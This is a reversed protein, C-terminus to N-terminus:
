AVYLIECSGCRFRKRLGLRRVSLPNYVFARTKLSGKPPGHWFHSANSFKNVPRSTQGSPRNHTLSTTPKQKPRLLLTTRTPGPTAPLRGRCHPALTVSRCESDTPKVLSILRKPPKEVTRKVKGLSGRSTKENEYLFDGQGVVGTKRHDWGISWLGNPKSSEPLASYLQNTFSFFVVLLTNRSCARRKECVDYLRFVAWSFDYRAREKYSFWISFSNLVCCM